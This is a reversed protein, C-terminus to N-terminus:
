NLWARERERQSSMVQPAENTGGVFSIANVCMCITPSHTPSPAAVDAVTAATATAAAHGFLQLRAVKKTKDKHMHLVAAADANKKHCSLMFYALSAIM